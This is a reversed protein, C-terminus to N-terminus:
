QQQLEPAYFGPSVKDNEINRFYITISIRPRLKHPAHADGLRWDPEL